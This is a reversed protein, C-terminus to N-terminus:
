RRGGGSLDTLLAEFENVKETENKAKQSFVPVPVRYPIASMDAKVPRVAAGEPVVPKRSPLAPILEEPLEYIGAVLSVEPVPDNMDLYRHALYELRAPHNLFDWEARLIRITEKENGVRAEFASLEGESRYVEQSVFYLMAGSAVALSLSVITSIRISSKKKKM